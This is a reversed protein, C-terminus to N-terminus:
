VWGLALLLSLSLYVLSEMLTQQWINFSTAGMVKKIGVEKFRVVIKALFLNIFNFAAILLIVIGTAIFTYLIKKDISAHMENEMNSFHIDELAQLKHSRVKSVYQPLFEKDFAELRDNVREVQAESALKVFSYVQPYHWTKGHDAIWSGFLEESASMPAIMEFELSSQSPLESFVGSVTFLVNQELMLTEGIVDSKGFYKMAARESIVINRPQSLANSIDGFKLPVSFVDFFTTDVYFFQDEQLIIDNDENAVSVSQQLLRVSKDVETMQSELLSAYPLYSHAFDRVANDNTETITVRYINDSYVHHKDYKFESDVFLFIVFCCAIGVSLGFLNIISNLRHRILQRYILKLYNRVM